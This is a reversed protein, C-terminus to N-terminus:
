DIEPDLKSGELLLNISIILLEQLNSMKVNHRNPLVVGEDRGFTNLFM